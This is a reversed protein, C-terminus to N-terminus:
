SNISDFLNVANNGHRAKNKKCCLHLPGRIQSLHRLSVSDLSVPLGHTFHLLAVRVQRLELGLHTKLRHAPHLCDVLNGLLESDMRHLDALPLALDLGLGLSQKFAFTAGLGDGGM